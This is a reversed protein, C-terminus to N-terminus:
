KARRFEVNPQFTKVGASGFWVSRTVRHIAVCRPFWASTM